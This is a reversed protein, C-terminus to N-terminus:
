QRMVIVQPQQQMAGAGGGGGGKFLYYGVLVVLLILFIWMLGTLEISNEIGAKSDVKIKSDIFAKIKNRFDVDGFVKTYAKIRANDIYIDGVGNGFEAKAMAVASAAAENIVEISLNNDVMTKITSELNSDTITPDLTFLASEKKNKIISAISAALDSNITASVDNDIKCKLETSSYATIDIGRVTIHGIQGDIRLTALAVGTVDCANHLDVNIQNSIENVMENKVSSSTASGM